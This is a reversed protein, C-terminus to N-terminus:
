FETVEMTTKAPAAKKIISQAAASPAAPQTSDPEASLLVDLLTSSTLDFKLSATFGIAGSFNDSTEEDHCEVLNFASDVADHSEEGDEDESDSHGDETPEARAVFSGHM